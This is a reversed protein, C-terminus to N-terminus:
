DSGTFAPLKTRLVRVMLLRESRLQQLLSTSDFIAVIFHPRLVGEILQLFRSATKRSYLSDAKLGTTTITKM